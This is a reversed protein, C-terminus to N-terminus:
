YSLSQTELCYFWYVRDCFDYLDMKARYRYYAQQLVLFELMHSDYGRLYYKKYYIDCFM